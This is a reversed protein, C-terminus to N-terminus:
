STIFSHSEIISSCEPEGISNFLIAVISHSLVCACASKKRIACSKSKSISSTSFVLVRAGGEVHTYVPVWKGQIAFSHFLSLSFFLSLHLSWFLSMHDVLTRDYSGYVYVCYCDHENSLQQTPWERKIITSPTCSRLWHVSSVPAKLMNTIGNTYGRACVQRGHQTHMCICCVM